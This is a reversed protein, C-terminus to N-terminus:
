PSNIILEDMFYVIDKLDYQKPFVKGNILILPTFNIKKNECWEIHYKHDVYPTYLNETSTWDELGPNAYWEKIASLCAEAGNQHYIKIFFNLVDVANKNKSQRVDFIIGVSLKDGKYHSLIENFISFAMNCYKCYPSLVLDIKVKGNISGFELKGKFETDVKVSRELLTKFLHFDRKFKLLSQNNIKSDLYLTVYHKFIVWFILIGLGISLAKLWYMQNVYFNSPATLLLTLLGFFIGATILCINCWRKFIFKQYYISYIIVPIGFLSFVLFFSHDFGLFTLQSILSLYYIIGLDALSLFGLIKSEQSKIVKSCDNEEDESYCFKSQFGDDINLENNSAIYSVFLGIFSLTLMVWATVDQTIFNVTILAILLIIALIKISINNINKGRIKKKAEIAIVLGSWISEFEKKAIRKTTSDNRTLKLNNSKKNVLNLDGNNLVALFTNPLKSLAEFKVKLAINEVKFFDLTDTIAKLSPFEPHSYLQLELENSSLSYGNQRLLSLVLKDIKNRNFDSLKIEQNTFKWV